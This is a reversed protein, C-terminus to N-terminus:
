TKRCVVVHREGELAFVRMSHVAEMTFLPSLRTVIEPDWKGQMVLLCGGSELLVAARAIFVPDVSVARSVVCSFLRPPEYMELSSHIVEVRDFELRHAVHHLFQTSKLKKDLLTIQRLPSLIALPVGPLGAGSGVDLIHNGHLFPLLTLSDLLHYAVMKLPDRIATINVAASWQYLEQLYDLFQQYQKESYDIQMAALGARLTQQIELLKEEPICKM